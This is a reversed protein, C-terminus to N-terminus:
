LPATIRAFFKQAEQFKQLALQFLKRAQTFDEALAAGGWPLSSDEPLGPLDFRFCM